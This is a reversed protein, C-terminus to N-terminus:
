ENKLKKIAKNIRKLVREKGLVEMVPFLEPSKNTGTVAIRIPM